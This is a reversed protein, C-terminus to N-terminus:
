ILIYYPTYKWDKAEIISGNQPEILKVKLDHDIYINVAHASKERFGFIIGIAYGYNENNLYAEKSAQAKYVVSFDDCDFSKRRYEFNKLGSNKHIKEAVKDSVLKYFTDLLRFTLLNFKINPWTKKLLPKILRSKIFDAHLTFLSYKKKNATLWAFREDHSHSFLFMETGQNNWVLRYQKVGDETKVYEKNFSIRSDDMNINRAHWYIQTSALNTSNDYAYMAYKNDNYEGVVKISNKPLKKDRLQLMIFNSSYDEESGMYAYEEENDYDADDEDDRASICLTRGHTDKLLYSAHPSINDEEDDETDDKSLISKYSDFVSHTKIINYKKEM